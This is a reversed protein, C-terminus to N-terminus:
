LSLVKRDLILSALTAIGAPIVGSHLASVGQYPHSSETNEALSATCSACAYLIGGAEQFIELYTELSDFGPISISRTAKKFAWIAAQENLYIAVNANMAQLSVALAFALTARAGGDEQGYTLLILHKSQETM